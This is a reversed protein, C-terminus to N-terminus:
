IKTTESETDECLFILTDPGSTTIDIKNSNFYEQRSFLETIKGYAKPFNMHLTEAIGTHVAVLRNNAYVPRLESCYIHCGADGAIERLDEAKLAEPDHIYISNWEGMDSRNVGPTGFPTGCIKEVNEPEWKGENIIGPGYAWIIRRQKNLVYKELIEQKVEPLEFPHCFIIMKFRNLDMLLLDNFSCILHPAGIHNLLLRFPRHFRHANPHMDNIYYVNGPNVVMLIESVEASAHSTQEDWIRKVLKFTDMAADSEWFGGWMDFYWLSTRNILSHAMERKIGAVVSTDDPWNLWAGSSPITSFRGIKRNATYTKCDVSNLMQKGHLHITGVATQSGSGGGTERDCYSIPAVFFDPYPSECLKEYALHGSSALMYEGVETIYGYVTGLEAIPRIVERAKKLFLEITEAIQENCFQWYDLAKRDTEPVRFLGGADPKCAKDLDSEDFGAWYGFSNSPTSFDFGYRGYERISRPPIDRPVPKGKDAMWRQYAALRYPSEEGRCRDHWETGGGCSIVYAVINKSYNNEAHSLLAQMYAITDRRWLESPTIKGLDYYSDYRANFAGLYRTWWHPTNLDIYCILRADPIVALIDGIQRDFVDLEYTNKWVWVPPYKTSAEGLSNATNSVMFTFTDIGNKRFKKMTELEPYFSRYGFDWNKEKGM